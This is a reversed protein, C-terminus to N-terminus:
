ISKLLIKVDFAIFNTKRFIFLSLESKTQEPYKTVKRWLIETIKSM